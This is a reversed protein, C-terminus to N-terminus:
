LRGEERATEYAMDAAFAAAANREDEIVDILQDQMAKEFEGLEKAKLPIERFLKLANDYVAVRYVSDLEWEDTVCAGVQWEMGAFEFNLTLEM